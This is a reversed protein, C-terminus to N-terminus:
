KYDELFEMLTDSMLDGLAISFDRPDPDFLYECWAEACMEHISSSGYASLVENVTGRNMKAFPAWSTGSNNNINSDAEYRFEDDSMDETTIEWEDFVDKLGEYFRAKRESSKTRTNDRGTDFNGFGINAVTHGIEHITTKLQAIQTDEFYDGYEDLLRTSGVHWSNDATFSNLLGKASVDVNDHNGFYSTNFRLQTVPVAPGGDHEQDWTTANYAIVGIGYRYMNDTGVSQVLRTFGPYMQEHVLIVANIDELAKADLGVGDNDTLQIGMSRTFAKATALRHEYDDEWKTVQEPTPEKGTKPDYDFGPIGPWMDYINEYDRNGRGQWVQERAKAAREAAKKALEKTKSHGGELKQKGPRQNRNTVYMSNLSWVFGGTNAPGVELSYRGTYTARSEGDYSDAWKLSSGAKQRSSPSTAPNRGTSARHTRAAAVVSALDTANSAAGGEAVIPTGIPQGYHAAGEPTRVYRIGDKEEVFPDSQKEECKPCQPNEVDDTFYDHGNPCTLRVAKEESGDPDDPLGDFEADFSVTEFWEDLLRDQASPSSM